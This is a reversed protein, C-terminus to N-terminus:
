NNIQILGLENIDLNLEQNNINILERFNLFDYYINFFDKASYEYNKNRQKNFSNLYDLDDCIVDDLLNAYNIVDDKKITEKIDRIICQLIHNQYLDRNKFEYQILYKKLINIEIQQEKNM